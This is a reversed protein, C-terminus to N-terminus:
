PRAAAGALTEVMPEVPLEGRRLAEAMTTNRPEQPMPTPYSGVLGRRRRGTTLTRRKWQRRM